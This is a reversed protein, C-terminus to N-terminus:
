SLDQQCALAATTPYVEGTGTGVEVCLLWYLAGYSCLDRPAGVVLPSGTTSCYSDTTLRLVMGLVQESKPYAVQVACPKPASCPLKTPSVGVSGPSTHVPVM